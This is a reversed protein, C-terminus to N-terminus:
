QVIEIEPDETTADRASVVYKYFGQAPNNLSCRIKKKGKKECTTGFPDQGAEFAISVPNSDTVLGCRDVITWEVTEKKFAEITQPFTGIICDGGVRDLAITAHVMKKGGGLPRVVGLGTTAAILGATVGVIAAVGASVLVNRM